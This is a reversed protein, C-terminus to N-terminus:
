DRGPGLADGSRRRTGEESREVGGWGWGRQGQSRANWNTHTRAHGHPVRRRAYRQRGRPAAGRRRRGACGGLHDVRVAGDGPQRARHARRLEHEVVRAPEDAVGAAERDAAADGAHGGGLEEARAVGVEEQGHVHEVGHEGVVLHGREGLGVGVGGGGPLPDGRGGAAAAPARGPAPAPAVRLVLGAAAIAGPHVRHEPQELGGTQLARITSLFMFYAGAGCALRAAAPQPAVPRVRPLRHQVGDLLNRETVRRVAPEGAPRRL